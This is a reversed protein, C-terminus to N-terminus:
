TKFMLNNISKSFYVNFISGGTFDEIPQMDQQICGLDKTITLRANPTYQMAKPAKLFRCYKPPVGIQSWSSCTKLCERLVWCGREKEEKVTYKCTLFLCTVLLWWKILFSTLKSSLIFLRKSTVWHGWTPSCHSNWYSSEPWVITELLLM